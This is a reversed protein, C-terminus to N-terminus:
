KDEMLSALSNFTFSFIQQFRHVLNSSFNRIGDSVHLSLYVGDFGVFVIINQRNNVLSFFYFSLVQLCEM